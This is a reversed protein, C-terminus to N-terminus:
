QMDFSNNNRASTGARAGTCGSNMLPDVTDTPCQMLTNAATIIQGNVNSSYRLSFPREAAHAAALPLACLLAAVVALSRRLAVLPNVSQM